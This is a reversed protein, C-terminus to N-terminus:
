LLRADASIIERSRLSVQFDVPMHKSADLRFGDIGYEAVYQPVWDILTQTVNANSQDLDM